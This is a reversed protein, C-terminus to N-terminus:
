TNEKNHPKENKEQIVQLGHALAEALERKAGRSTEWGRLLYIADRKRCAAITAPSISAALKRIADTM